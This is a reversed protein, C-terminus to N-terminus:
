VDFNENQINDLKQGANDDIDGGCFISLILMSLVVESFKTKNSKIVKQKNTEFIPASSILM